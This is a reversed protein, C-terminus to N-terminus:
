ISERARMNKRLLGLLEPELNPFRIDDLVEAYLEIKGPAGALLTERLPGDMRLSSLAVFSINNLILVHWLGEIDTSAWACCSVLGFLVTAVFIRMAERWTHM